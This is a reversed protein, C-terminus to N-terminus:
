KPKTATTKAAMKMPTKCDADAKIAASAKALTDFSDTGIETATKGDPKFDVVYCYKTKISQEAYYTKAKAAAFAAAPMAVAAIVALTVYKRM